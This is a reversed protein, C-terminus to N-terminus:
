RVIQSELQQVRKKLKEIDYLYKKQMGNLKKEFRDKM